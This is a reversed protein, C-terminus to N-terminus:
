RSKDRQALGPPDPRRAITEEITQEPFIAKTAGIIMPEFLQRYKKVAERSERRWRPYQYWRWVEWWRPKRVSAGILVPKPM